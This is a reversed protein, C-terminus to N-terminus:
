ESVNKKAWNTCYICKNLCNKKKAFNLIKRRISRDEFQQLGYLPMASRCMVLEHMLFVMKIKKLKHLLFVDKKNKGCNLLIRRVFQTPFKEGTQATFVSKKNTRANLVCVVEHLSFVLHM